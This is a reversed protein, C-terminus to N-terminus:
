PLGLLSRLQQAADAYYQGLYVGFATVGVLIALAIFGVMIAYETATAGREPADNGEEFEAKM